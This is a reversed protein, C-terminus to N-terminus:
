TSVPDIEIFAADPTKGSIVLYLWDRLDEKKIGGADTNHGQGKFAMFRSKIGLSVMKDYNSVAFDYPIQDDETGHYFANPCDGIDILDNKSTAGSMTFSALISIKENNPVDLDEFMTNDRNNWWLAAQFGTVAGASNGGVIMKVLKIRFTSNNERVYALLNWINVAAMIQKEFTYNGVDLKFEASICVYGKLTYYICLEEMSEINGGGAHLFVICPRKKLQDDFPEYFNFPYGHQYEHSTKIYKSFIDDKYRVLAAAPVAPQEAKQFTNGFDILPVRETTDSM